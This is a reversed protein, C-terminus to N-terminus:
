VSTMDCSLTQDLFSLFIVIRLDLLLEDLEHLVDLLLELSGDHVLFEFEGPLFLM